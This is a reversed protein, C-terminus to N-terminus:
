VMMRICRFPDTMHFRNWNLFMSFIFATHGVGDDQYMQLSWDYLFLKLELIYYLYVCSWSQLFEWSFHKTLPESFIFTVEARDSNDASSDRQTVGGFHRAAYPKKECMVNNSHWSAQYLCNAAYHTSQLFDLLAGRQVLTNMIFIM